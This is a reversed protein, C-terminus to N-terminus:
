EFLRCRSWKEVMPIMLSCKAFQKAFFLVEHLSVIALCYLLIMDLPSTYVVGDPTRDRRMKAKKRLFWRRIMVRESLSTKTKVPLMVPFIAWIMAIKEFIMKAKKREFLQGYIVITVRPSLRLVSWWRRSREVCCWWPWQRPLRQRRPVVRLRLEVVGVVVLM